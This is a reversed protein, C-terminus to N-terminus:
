KDYQKTVHLAHRHNIKDVLAKTRAKTPKPAPGGVKQGKDNFYSDGKKILNVM